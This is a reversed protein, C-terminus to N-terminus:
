KDQNIIFEVAKNNNKINIIKQSGGFEGDLTWPIDTESEVYIESAKFFTIYDTNITQKLNLLSSLVSQLELLSNPTKILTVEYLGDNISFDGTSLLGGVSATNSVMGFIFEGDITESKNIKIKLKYSKINSIHKLGELIYAAHGLMNKYQQPTEYAVETFAGFAAIYEFYKDNFSGIDCSLSTGTVISELASTFKKPIKLTTAFDNTSGSPIYGIPIKKESNMLGQIVENLTGDGGSCIVIDYFNRKCLELTTLYADLPAQTPRITVEFDNQTLIDIIKHIKSKILGKGSLANYLFFAKKM